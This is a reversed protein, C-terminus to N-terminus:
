EDNIQINLTDELLDMLELKDIIGSGDKDYSKFLKTAEEIQKPTISM